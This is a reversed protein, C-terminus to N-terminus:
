LGNKGGKQADRQSEKQRQMIKKLGKIFAEGNGAKIQGKFTNYQQRSLFRKFKELIIYYNM